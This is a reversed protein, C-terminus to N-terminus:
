KIEPWYYEYTEPEFGSDQEWKFQHYWDYNKVLLARRHGDVVKKLEEENSLWSPRSTEVDGNSIRNKMLASIYTKKAKEYISSKYGRDIWEGVMIYIYYLLYRESGRWMKVAPHNIWAKSNRDSGDPKLNTLAMLIQWAELAQKNLRKNDLEKATEAPYSSTIFTQM